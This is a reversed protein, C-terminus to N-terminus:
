KVSIKKVNEQGIKSVVQELTLDCLDDTWDAIYYLKESHNILGFLIPDRKAFATKKSSEKHMKETEDYYLVCYNDFICLNDAFIKKDVVSDPVVRGFNEIYDIDVIRSCKNQLKVIDDFTIYTSMGHVALISEYINIVLSQCLEDIQATQGMKKAKEILSLRSAVNDVVDQKKASEIHIISLLDFLTLTKKKKRRRHCFKKVLEVFEGISSKKEIVKYDDDNNYTVTMPVIISYNNVDVELKLIKSIFDNFKVADSNMFYETFRELGYNNVLRRLEFDVNTIKSDRTSYSSDVVNFGTITNGNPDFDESKMKNLFQYKPLKNDIKVQGNKVLSFFGIDSVLKM